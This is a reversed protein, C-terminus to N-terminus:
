VKGKVGAPVRGDCIVGAVRRWGSRGAQVRKKLERGCEGNSHDTSGLYKSM